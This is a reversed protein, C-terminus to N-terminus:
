EKLDISSEKVKTIGEVELYKEKQDKLKMEKEIEKAEEM